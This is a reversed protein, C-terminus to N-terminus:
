IGSFFHYSLFLNYMLPSPLIFCGSTGFRRVFRSLTERYIRFCAVTQERFTLFVLNRSSFSTG